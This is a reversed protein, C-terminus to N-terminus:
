LAKEGDLKAQAHQQKGHQKLVHSATTQLNKGATNGRSAIALAESAHRDVPFSDKSNNQTTGADSAVMGSKEELLTRGRQFKRFQEDDPIEENETGYPKNGHPFKEGYRHRIIKHTATLCFADSAGFRSTGSPRAVQLEEERKGVGEDGTDQRSKEDLPETLDGAGCAFAFSASGKSKGEAETGADEDNHRAGTGREELRHLVKRQEHFKQFNGVSLCDFEEPINERTVAARHRPVPGGGRRRAEMSLSM